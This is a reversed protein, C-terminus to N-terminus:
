KSRHESQPDDQKVTVLYDRYLTVSRYASNYMNRADQERSGKEVLTALRWGDKTLNGVSHIDENDQFFNGGRVWATYETQDRQEKHEKSTDQITIIAKAHKWNLEQIISLENNIQSQFVKNGNPADVYFGELEVIKPTLKVDDALAYYSGEDLTHM